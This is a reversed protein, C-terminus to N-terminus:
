VADPLGLARRPHVFVLVAVFSTGCNQTRAVLTIKERRLYKSSSQSVGLRTANDGAQGADVHLV